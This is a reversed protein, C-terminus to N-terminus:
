QPKEEVTYPQLQLASSGPERPHMTIIFKKNDCIKWEPVTVDLQSLTHTLSVCFITRQVVNHEDKWAAGFVSYLAGKGSAVLDIDHDTLPASVVQMQQPDNEIVNVGFKLDRGEKYMADIAANAARLMAADSYTKYDLFKCFVWNLLTM